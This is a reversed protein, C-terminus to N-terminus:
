ISSMLSSGYVEALRQIHSKISYAKRVEVAIQEARKKTEDINELMGRIANACDERDDTRYLTAWEGERTIERMVDWDNVIVPLGSAMAEVVAIGFTDHDTAYVFGDINQLIAPVDGRGGLFHVNKLENEECYKVCDDYRWPEKPDRKGVFYFDFNQVGQHSLVQISKVIINQARVRVFNGVMALRIRRQPVSDIKASLNRRPSASDLKSLFDPMPHKADLKEFDIGNYVVHLKNEQRIRYVMKYYDRQAKSVFCVADAVQISLRNIWKAVVGAGFDYGHFTVVVRIETGITALWSYICDLSQQAHVHTVRERLFHKRLQWIFRLKGFTKPTCQIMRPGAAYFDEQYAGGRRHIGLMEYPAKSANRFVDLLLTETGGRNLSGLFYAVKM